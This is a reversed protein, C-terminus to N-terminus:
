MVVGVVVAAVVIVAMAWGSVGPVVRPCKNLNAEFCIM